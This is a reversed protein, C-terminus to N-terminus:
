RDDRPSPSTYLLCFFSQDIENFKNSVNESNDYILSFSQALLIINVNGKDEELIQMLELNKYELDLSIIKAIRRNIPKKSRSDNNSRRADLYNKFAFDYYGKSSYIDGMTIYFSTKLNVPFSLPNINKAENLAMDFEELNYLAKIKIVQAHNAYITDLIGSDDIRKIVSNNRQRNLDDVLSKIFIENADNDINQGFLSSLLIIYTIFRM